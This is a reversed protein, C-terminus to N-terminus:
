CSMLGITGGIDASRGSALSREAQEIPAVVTALAAADETPLVGLALDPEVLMGQEMGLSVQLSGAVSAVGLVALPLLHTGATLVALAGTAGTSDLNVSGGGCLSARVILTDSANGVAEGSGPVPAGESNGLDTGRDENGDRLKIIDRSPGQQNRGPPATGM